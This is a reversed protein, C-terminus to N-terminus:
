QENWTRQIPWGTQVAFQTTAPFFPPAVAGNFFRQDFKFDDAYGAVANGSGDVQGRIQDTDEALSGLMHIAGKPPRVGPSKVSLGKGTSGALIAGNIYVDAPAGDGIVVSDAGSIIGLVNSASPTTRPDDTYTLDGDITVAGGAAVNLQSASALAPPVVSPVSATPAPSPLSGTRNPGGLGVINGSVYLQGNPVGTLVATGGTSKTYTTTKAAYDVTITTTVNNAKITYVQKTGSTSLTVDADGQVYIGGSVAGAKSPIYTGAPVSGCSGLLGLATCVDGTSLATLDTADMGLSARAQSRANKPLDIVATNYQLGKGNTNPATCGGPSAQQGSVKVFAFGSCGKADNMWAYSDSISAGALFTPKGSLAWNKNVHVPGDYVSSTDFFGSTGNSGSGGDNALLIFQNLSQRGMNIRVTGETTVTRANDGVKGTGTISYDLYYSQGNLNFSGADGRLGRFNISSTSSYGTGSNSIDKFSTEIAALITPYASAPIIPTVRSDSNSSAFAKVYPAFAADIASLGPNAIYYFMDAQGAEAYARAQAQGQSLGAQSMESTSKVVMTTGLLLLLALVAIVTPLLFGQERTHRMHM